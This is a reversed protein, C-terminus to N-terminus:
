RPPRLAAANRALYEYLEGTNHIHERHLDLKGDRFLDWEEGRLVFPDIGERSYTVEWTLHVGGPIPTPGVLVKPERLDFRRDFATCSEDVAAIAADRGVFAGALPKEPGIVVWVLDDTVREAVAAWDGSAFSQEFALAFRGFDQISDSM